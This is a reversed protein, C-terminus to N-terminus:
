IVGARKLLFASVALGAGAAAIKLAGTGTENVARGILWSAGAGIGILLVVPM